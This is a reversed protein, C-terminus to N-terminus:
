RCDRLCTQRSRLEEGVNDINGADLVETDMLGLSFDVFFDNGPAVSLEVEAGQIESDVNIVTFVNDLFRNLQQDQYDNFFASVTSAHAATLSSQRLESRMPRYTKRTVPNDGVSRGTNTDLDMISMPAQNFRGGKFGRSWKAYILVDDSVAVDIGVTAGYDVFTTDNINATPDDSGGVYILRNNGGGPNGVFVNAGADM